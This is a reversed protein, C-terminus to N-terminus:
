TQLWHMFTASPNNNLAASANTFVFYGIRDPTLFTTRAITYLTIWNYGDVSYYYIRNTGNDTIRLWIMTPIANLFQQAATASITTSNTWNRAVISFGSAVANANIGITSILSSANTQFCLGYDFSSSAFLIPILATTITFPTSPYAKVRGRFQVAGTAAGGDFFVYGKSSTIAASGQNVWSFASDDLPTLPWVPGWAAWAAGTDRNVYIGDNPLFIKGDQAAAPRSGYASTPHGNPIITTKLLTDVQTLTVKETTGAGSTTSDAPFTHNLTASSAAGLQNPTKNAM